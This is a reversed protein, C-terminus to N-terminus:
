DVGPAVGDGTVETLGEAVLVECGAGVAVFRGFRTNGVLSTLPVEMAAGGVRASSFGTSPGGLEPLPPKNACCLVLRVTRAMPKM